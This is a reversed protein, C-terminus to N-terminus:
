YRRFLNQRTLVSGSVAIGSRACRLPTLSPQVWNFRRFRHQWLRSQGANPVGSFIRDNAAIRSFDRIFQIDREWDNVDNYDPATENAGGKWNTKLEVLGLVAPLGSATRVAEINALLTNFSAVAPITTITPAAIETFEANTGMVMDVVAKIIKTNEYIRAWDLVNFFAKATRNTIDLLVRDFIPRLWM